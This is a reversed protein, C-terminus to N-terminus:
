AGSLRHRVVEAEARLHEEIVPLAVRAIRAGVVPLHLRLDADLRFSSAGTGDARLEARGDVEAPFGHVRASIGATRSGDPEAPGWREQQTLELRPGTAAQLRRSFRDTPIWRHVTLLVEVEPEEPHRLEVRCEAAGARIARLRQFSPDTLLAFVREPPAPYGIDLLLRM